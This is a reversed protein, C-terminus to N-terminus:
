IAAIGQACGGTNEDANDSGTLITKNKEEAYPLMTGAVESRHYGLPSLSAVKEFIEGFAAEKM